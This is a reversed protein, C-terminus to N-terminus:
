FLSAQLSAPRGSVRAIKEVYGDRDFKRKLGNANMFRVTGFVEREKWPRDHKGFCWAVGAFSNVDMGDLEYKNNLALATAFAEEPTASWEIIKKGWYMRMYNHMKGTATM